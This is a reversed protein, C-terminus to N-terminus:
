CQSIHQQQETATMDLEKHGWSSYCALIGQGESDGQTQEFENGNLWHHWGVMEDETAEKGEAKLRKWCWPRKWHTLQEWWTAFCQFKLKLMLYVFIFNPPWQSDPRLCMGAGSLFQVKKVWPCRWNYESCYGVVAVKYVWPEVKYSSVMEPGLWDKSLLCEGTEGAAVTIRSLCSIYIVM